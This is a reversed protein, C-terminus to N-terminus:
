FNKEQISDIIAGTSKVVDSAVQGITINNDICYPASLIVLIALIILIKV